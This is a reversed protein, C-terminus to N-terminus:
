PERTRRRYEGANNILIDVGGFKEKALAVTKHWDDKNTVNATITQVHTEPQGEFSKALGEANMDAAM